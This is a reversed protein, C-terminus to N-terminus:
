EQIRWPKTITWHLHPVSGQWAQEFTTKSMPKGGERIELNLRKRNRHAFQRVSAISKNLTQGIESATYGDQWMRVLTKVDQETYQKQFAM